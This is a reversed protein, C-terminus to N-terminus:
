GSSGWRWRFGPTLPSRRSDAPTWQQGVEMPFWPNPSVTSFGGASPDCVDLDLEKSGTTAPAGTEGGDQFLSEDELSVGLPPTEECGAFAACAAATALCAVTRIASM